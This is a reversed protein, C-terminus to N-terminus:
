PILCSIKRVPDNMMTMNSMISDADVRMSDIQDYHFKLHGPAPSFLVDHNCLDAYYIGEFITEKRPFRFDLHQEQASEMHQM